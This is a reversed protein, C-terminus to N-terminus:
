RFSGNRVDPEVDRSSSCIVRVDNASSALAGSKPLLDLLVEQCETSLECIEDMYLSVADSSIIHLADPNLGSCTEVRFSEPTRGAAHHIRQAITRKGTGREGILLVPVPSNALERIVAEVARMTPSIAEVLRLSQLG